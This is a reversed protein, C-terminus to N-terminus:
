LSELFALLAARDSPPLGVVRDRAAEAEGGHWLIAELVSRARGDHLLQTHGSVDRTHGLGWLPATRWERGDAAGEPRGDALGEGMDHLLLDTYPWIRQGSLEPRDAGDGTTFSPRHCADCGVERFVARGRLVQPTPAARAPVALNAAYFVTLDFLRPDVEPLGPRPAGDPAARCLPQAATCEGFGQPHIPTALGMDALFADAVQDRLTPALAKWGFRGLAPAGLSGSWVRAARGSIGDHDRDDPDAGALIDREPVLELLGLGIMPPAVRPSTMLGPAPPGYGWGEIRWAPHRLRAVEGGSLPVSQETWDVAVHGEAAHGQIGFTQLQLGYTPDPTAPRWGPAPEGAQAVPGPVSLRMLLSSAAEGPEPPHGRGDRLHCSQCGRANYLPGLGDSSTTSSPSSVWLKRFVGDGIRFDFLRAYPLNGSGQSFARADGTSRVSAAGGPLLESPDPRDDAAVAGALVLAAAAALFRRM